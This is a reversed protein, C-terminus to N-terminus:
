GESPKSLNKADTLSLGSILSPAVYSFGRFLDDDLVISGDRPTPCPSDQRPRPSSRCPRMLPLRRCLGTCATRRCCCQVGEGPPLPTEGAAAVSGDGHM